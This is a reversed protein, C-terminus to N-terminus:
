PSTSPGARPDRRRDELRATVRRVLLIAVVAASIELLSGLVMVQLPGDLDLPRLPDTALAMALGHTLLAAPALTGVAWGLPSRSAGTAGGRGSAIRRARARWAFAFVGIVLWTALQVGRLVLLQRGHAALAGPALSEGALGHWVMGIYSHAGQVTMWALAM